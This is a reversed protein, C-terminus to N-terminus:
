YGSQATIDFGSGNWHLTDTFYGNVDEDWHQVYSSDFDWWYDYAVHMKWQGSATITDVADAISLQMQSTPDGVLTWHVNVQHNGLAFTSNPCNAPAIQQSAACQAFLGSIAQNIAVGARANLTATFTVSKDNTGDVVRTNADFINTAALNVEHQGPIVEVAGGGDPLGSDIGDITIAGSNKFSTIHITSPPIVVKWFPYIVWNSRSNDRRVHIRMTTDHSDRTLGVTVTYNSDDQRASDSIRINKLDTNASYALTKKLADESLLPTATISTGEFSVTSWVAAVDDRSM